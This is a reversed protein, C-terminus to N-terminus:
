YLHFLSQSGEVTALQAPMVSRHVQREYWPPVKCAFAKSFLNRDILTLINEDLRPTKM